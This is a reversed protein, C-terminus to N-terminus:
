LEQRVLPWCQWCGQLLVTQCIDPITSWRLYQLPVLPTQLDLYIYVKGVTQYHSFYMRQGRNSQTTRASGSCYKVWLSTVAVLPVLPLYCLIGTQHSGGRKLEYTFNHRCFLEKSTFHFFFSIVGMHFHSFILVSNTFLIMNSM